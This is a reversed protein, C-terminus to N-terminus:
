NENASQPTDNKGPTTGEGDRRHPNNSRTEAEEAADTAAGGSGSSESGPNAKKPSTGYRQPRQTAQHWQKGEANEM